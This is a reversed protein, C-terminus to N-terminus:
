KLKLDVGEAALLQPIFPSLDERQGFHYTVEPVITVNEYGFREVLGKYFHGDGGYLYPWDLYLEPIARIVGNQTSVAGPVIQEARTVSMPPILGIEGDWRRVLRFIYVRPSLDVVHRRIHEFARPTYLDDDDAHLHFAGPLSRQWKNRSGHGWWGLPAANEILLKTCNCRVHSFTEAVHLHWSPKDSILTIYDRSTLQPALAAMFVPLEARGTSTVIVNFSVEDSGPLPAFKGPAPQLSLPPAGGGGGGPSSTPRLSHHAPSGGRLMSSDLLLLALLCAALAAVPVGSAPRPPAPDAAQM